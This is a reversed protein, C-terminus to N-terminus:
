ADAPHIELTPGVEAAHFLNAFTSNLFHHAPPSILVLPFRTALQPNSLRDERPPIYTPLPDLYELRESYFECKGWPTPFHGEAFPADGVNMSQWGKERLSEVTIGKMGMLAQRAMEEDSEKFCPETFGMRQALSRFIETNPKAEGLPAIAPTNLMVYTHGYA